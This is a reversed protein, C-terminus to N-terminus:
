RNQQVVETLLDSVIDKWSKTVSHIPAEKKGGAPHDMCWTVYVDEEEDAGLEQIAALVVAKSLGNEDAVRAALLDRKQREAAQLDSSAANDIMQSQLIEETVAEMSSTLSARISAWGACPCLSSLLAHLQSSEPIVEGNQSDDKSALDRCLRLLQETTFYNLYYHEVRKATVHDNWRALCREIFELLCPLEEKLPRRGYLKCNEGVGFDMCVTFGLDAKSGCVFDAKWDLFLTNGASCLQVYM